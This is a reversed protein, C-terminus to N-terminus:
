FLPYSKPFMLKIRSLEYLHWHKWGLQRFLEARAVLDKKSPAKGDSDVAKALARCASAPREQGAEYSAYLAAAKADKAPVWKLLELMASRFEDHSPCPQDAPNDQGTGTAAPQRNVGNADAEATEQQQADIGSRGEEADAETQQPPSPHPAEPSAAAAVQQLTDSTEQFM